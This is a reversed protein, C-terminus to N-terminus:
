NADASRLKAQDELQSQRRMAQSEALAQAALQTKGEQRYAESLMYHLDGYHDMALSQEFQAAALAPKGTRLYAKGLAPRAEILTPDYRLAAELYPIGRGPQQEYVYLNGLLYLSRASSPDLRLAAELEEKGPGTQNKKLLLGALAQHIGADGPNLKEAQRYAAIAELDSQRARLADGKIEFAMWTGPYSSSLRDFCADSLRLYSRDLWYIARIDSKSDSLLTSFALAASQDQHLAFFAKGLAYLDDLSLQRQSALYQACLREQHNQCASAAGDAPAAVAQAQRVANQLKEQEHQAKDTEGAARFLATLLFEKAISPAATGLQAAMRRANAASLRPTFGALAWPLLEPTRRSVENVAAIAGPDDGQDLRAEATGLLANLDAPDQARGAAFESDASGIKHLELLAHGLAAHLGPQPQGTSKLLAKRYDDAADNWLNREGLVDGAFRLSWASNNYKQSLEETLQAAMHLYDKGLDFLAAAKDPQANELSVFQVTAQRYQGQALLAEALARKAQRNSPDIRLAQELAPTAKGPEGLKMYSLGLFLNAALLAPRRRAAESLTAVALKYEGAAHYALGLNVEAEVMGPHLRLAKSFNRIAGTFRGDRMDQQGARFFQAWNDDFAALKPPCVAPWALAVTLGTIFFLRQRRTM